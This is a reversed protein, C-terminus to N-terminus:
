SGIRVRTTNLLHIVRAEEYHGGNQNVDIRAKFIAIWFMNSKPDNEIVSQCNQDYNQTVTQPSNATFRCFQIRTFKFDNQNNLEVWDRSNKCFSSHSFQAMDANGLERQALVGNLLRFGTLNIVDSGGQSVRSPISLCFNQETHQYNDCQATHDQLSCIQIGKAEVDPNKYSGGRNLHVTIIEGIRNVQDVLSETNLDNQARMSIGMLKLAGTISIALLAMGIVLSVSSAGHCRRTKKTM